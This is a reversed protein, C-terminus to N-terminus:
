KGISLLLKKKLGNVVIFSIIKMEEQFIDCISSVRRKIVGGEFQSALLRMLFTVLVEKGVVILDVTPVEQVGCIVLFSSRYSADKMLQM